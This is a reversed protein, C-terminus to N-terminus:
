IKQVHTFLLIFNIVLNLIYITPKYLQQTILYYLCMIIDSVEIEISDLVIHLYLFLIFIM